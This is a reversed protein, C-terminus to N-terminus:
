TGKIITLDINICFTFWKIAEVCSEGTAGKGLLRTKLCILAVLPLNLFAPGLLYSWLSVQWGEESVSGLSKLSLEAQTFIGLKPGNGEFSCFLKNTTQPAEEQRFKWNELSLWLPVLSTERLGRPQIHVWFPEWIINEQTKHSSNTGAVGTKVSCFCHTSIPHRSLSSQSLQFIM